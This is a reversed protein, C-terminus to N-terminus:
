SLFQWLQNAPDQVPSRQHTMPGENDRTAIALLLHRKRLLYLLPYRSRLPLLLCLAPSSAEFWRFTDGSNINYAQDQAHPHTALWIQGEAMMDVDICEALANYAEPM